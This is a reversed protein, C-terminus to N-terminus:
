LIKMLLDVIRNTNHHHHILLFPLFSFATGKFFLPVQNLVNQFLCQFFKSQGSGYILPEPTFGGRTRTPSKLIPRDSSFLVRMKTRKRFRSSM